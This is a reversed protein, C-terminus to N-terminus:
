MGAKYRLFNNRGAHKVAYMAADARRVLEEESEGDAPYEAIGISCGIFHEQGNLVFASTLAAIVKEAVITASDVRELRSLIITFEDGGMRAVTDTERVCAHLRSAVEKLLVDGMEHGLTDNIAKFRDLDLFLVAVKGQYRRAENLLTGLRDFFLARNPLGTLVDNHAMEDLKIDTLKHQIVTSLTHSVRQLFLEDQADQVYGEAVYSNLVGLVRDGKAMIPVCYHGHGAMGEYHIEHRADVHASFVTRRDQAARGCLCKGVPVQACSTLLAVNLGCQAVMELSDNATNLLFIAGKQLGGFKPFSVIAELASQLLEPLEHPQIAKQLISDIVRESQTNWELQQRDKKRESIDRVTALLFPEEGLDMRTLLVDASFPQGDLRQHEWEFFHSGDRMATAIVEQAGAASRSGDPQYEPSIDWPGLATFESVGASGFLKLTAENAGTFRWSPPALTMLADHSSDFLMQYKLMSIRQRDEAQQRALTARATIWAIMALLLYILGFMIRNGAQTYFTDATLADYPVFSVVKWHYEHAELARQSPAHALEFGTASLQEPMLPYVTAYAFLGQDTLLTGQESGSITRWAEPFAHAFTLDHKGLMFGWEDEHRPSSLWYGDRNILMDSYSDDSHLGKRFHELLHNGLYNLLIIGKKRGASDFVPMGFRIMPKYPMELSGYEMNLDLPSVFIEGQNLKFTDSFYYRDAKNQLQERPVIAPQGNNYNIRLVEQGGADLYRVQDYFRMERALVVFYSALIDHEAPNGSDLYRQLSPLSAIVRLDANVEAVNAAILGSAIAVHSKEQATVTETQRQESVRVALLLVVSLVM